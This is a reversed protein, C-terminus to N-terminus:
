DIITSFLPWEDIVCLRIKLGGAQENKNLYLLLLTAKVPLATPWLDIGGSNLGRSPYRLLTNRREGREM